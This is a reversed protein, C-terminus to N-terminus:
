DAEIALWAVQGPSDGDGPSPGQAATCPMRVQAHSAGGGGGGAVDSMGMPASHVHRKALSLAYTFVALARRM